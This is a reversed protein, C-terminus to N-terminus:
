PCAWVMTRYGSAAIAIQHGSYFPCGERWGFNVFNGPPLSKIFFERTRNQPDACVFAVDSLPVSAQNSVRAVLGPGGDGLPFYTVACPVPSQVPGSRVPHSHVPESDFVGMMGLIILVGFLGVFGFRRMFPITNKEALAGLTSREVEIGRKCKGCVRLYKQSVVFTFLWFIGAYKYQVGAIEPQTEKCTPCHIQGVTGLPAFADGWNIIM